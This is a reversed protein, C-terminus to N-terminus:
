QILIGNSYIIASPNNDYFKSLDLSEVFLSADFTWVAAEITQM